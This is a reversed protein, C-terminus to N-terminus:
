MSTFRGLYKRVRELADRLAVALDKGLKQQAQTPPQNGQDLKQLLQAIRESIRPGDSWQPATAPKVLLDLLSDV